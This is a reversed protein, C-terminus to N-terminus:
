KQTTQTLIELEKAALTYNQKRANELPTLQEANRRSLDAGCEALARVMAPECTTHLPYFNPRNVNAGMAVLRKVAAPHDLQVALSLAIDVDPKRQALLGPHPSESLLAWEAALGPLVGRALLYDVVEHQACLAAVYLAQRYRAAGANLLLRVCEVHGNAAAYEIPTRSFSDADETNAGRALLVRVLDSKGAAAAHKLPAAQYYRGKAPGPDFASANCHVAGALRHVYEQRLSRFFDCDGQQVATAVQAAFAADDDIRPAPHVPLTAVVAKDDAGAALLLEAIKQQKASQAILLPTRCGPNRRDIAFFCRTSLLSRLREVDDAKLIDDM